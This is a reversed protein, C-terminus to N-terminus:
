VEEDSSGLVVLGLIYFKWRHLMSEGKRRKKLKIERRKGEEEELELKKKMSEM